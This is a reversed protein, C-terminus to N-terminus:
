KHIFSILYIFSIGLFKYNQSHNSLMLAALYINPSTSFSFFNKNIVNGNPKPFGVEFKIRKSDHANLFANSLIIVISFRLFSSFFIISDFWYCLMSLRVVVYYITVSLNFHLSRLKFCKSGKSFRTFKIFYLEHIM